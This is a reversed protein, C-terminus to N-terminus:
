IEMGGRKDITERKPKETDGDRRTAQRYYGKKAARRGWWTEMRRQKYTYKGEQYSEVGVINGERKAQRNEGKKAARYRWRTKSAQLRGEQSSEEGVM